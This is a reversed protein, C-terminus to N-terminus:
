SFRTNWPLGGRQLLAGVMEGYDAGQRDSEPLQPWGNFWVEGIRLRLAASDQLLRIVGEIHDGDVHTVVLLQLEPLDGLAEIRDHIARYTGLAGADVLMRHPRRESGWTVLLADGHAAPLMELRLM